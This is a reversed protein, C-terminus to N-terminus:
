DESSGLTQVLIESDVDVSLRDIDVLRVSDELGASLSSDLDGSEAVM